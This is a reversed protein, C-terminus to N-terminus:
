ITLSTSTPWSFHIKYDMRIPSEVLYVTLDLPGVGSSWYPVPQTIWNCLLLGESSQVPTRSNNLPYSVLIPWTTRLSRYGLVGWKPTCDLLCCYLFRDWSWDVSGHCSVGKLPTYLANRKDFRGRILLPVLRACLHILNYGRLLM